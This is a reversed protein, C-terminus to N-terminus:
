PDYTQPTKLWPELRVDQPQFDEATIYLEALLLRTERHDPHLKVLAQFRKIRQMPTEDPVIQAFAAALDPHPQAQWATKLVRVAYRPKAQAIYGQATLVAAPVLDPSLRNAEVAATHAGQQDDDIAEYAESLALVADRRKHIDRPLTGHKLKASLTKRAGAWDESSAQLKLM